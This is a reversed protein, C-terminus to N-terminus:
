WKHYDNKVESLIKIKLARLKYYNEKLKLFLKKREEILEDFQKILEKM